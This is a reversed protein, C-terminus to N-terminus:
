KANKKRRNQINKPDIPSDDDPFSKKLIKNVGRGGLYALTQTLIDTGAKQIADYFVRKVASTPHIEKDLQKYDKIAQLKKTKLELEEISMDKLKKRKPKGVSASARKTAKSGKAYRIKGEPTLSGNSFQYRREGWKQGRIGFHELYNEM